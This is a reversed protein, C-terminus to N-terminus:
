SRLLMAVLGARHSIGGDHGASFLQPQVMSISISVSLVMAAITARTASSNM